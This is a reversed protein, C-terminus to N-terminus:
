LDSFLRRHNRYSEEDQVPQSCHAIFNLGANMYNHIYIISHFIMFISPVNFQFTVRKSSSLPNEYMPMYIAGLEVM